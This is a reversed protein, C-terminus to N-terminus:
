LLELKSINSRPWLQRVPLM